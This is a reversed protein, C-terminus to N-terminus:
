FQSIASSNYLLILENDYKLEDRIQREIEEQFDRSSILIAESRGKVAAPSIIPMGNLLKGQYRPNSDVFAQINANALRSVALLRQTHTGAGWVLIPNGGDVLADIVLRVRKEIKESRAVYDNLAPETKLDIISLTQEMVNSKQYLSNIEHAMKGARQELSTQQSYIQTFGCVRLLNALSTASFFNIHEISFEQFPADASAAFKTADPVEIFLMGDQSLLGRIRLLAEKLNRIHELVAGLIILDFTGIDAPVLSLTGTRVSVGYLEAATHACVPSPDLGLLNIYGSQALTHLLGGTACGIDLIRAQRDPLFRTIISANAPFRRADFATEKGGRDQQEYKSMERYYEDFADQGPLNDAFAFGCDGCAVVDYGDLITGASM